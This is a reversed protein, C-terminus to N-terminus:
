LMLNQGIRGFCPGLHSVACFVRSSEQLPESWVDSNVIKHANKEGELDALEVELMETGYEVCCITMIATEVCNLDQNQMAAVQELM